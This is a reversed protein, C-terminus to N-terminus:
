DPKAMLGGVSQGGVKWETYGGPGDGGHDEARWGFVAGYFQKAGAVDTTVLESWSYTGPENVLGAGKHQNPQWIGIAAGAPDPSGLDIWSPVGHEYSEIEMAM